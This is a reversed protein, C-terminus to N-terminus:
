FRPKIVTFYDPKVGVRSVRNGIKGCTIEVRLLAFTKRKELIGCEIGTLQTRLRDLEPDAEHVVM